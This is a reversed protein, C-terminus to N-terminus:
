FSPCTEKSLVKDVMALWVKSIYIKSKFSSQYFQLYFILSAMKFLLDIHLIVISAHYESAYLPQADVSNAYNSGGFAAVASPDASHQFRHDGAAYHNSGAHGGRLTELMLAQNYYTAGVAPYSLDARVTPLALTAAVSCPQSSLPSNHRHRTLHLSRRNGPTLLNQNGCSSSIISTTDFASSPPLLSSFGSVSVDQDATSNGM